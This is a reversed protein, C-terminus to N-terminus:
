EFFDEVHEIFDYVNGEVPYEYWDNNSMGGSTVWDVFQPYADTISLNELPHNYIKPLNIGWPLDFASLYYRDSLPDSADDATGFYSSCIRGTPLYNAFHIERSIDQNIVLFPNYPPYDEILRHNYEAAYYLTIHFSFHFPDTFESGSETNHYTPPDEMYSQGGEFIQVVLNGDGGNQTDYFYDFGERSNETDNFL